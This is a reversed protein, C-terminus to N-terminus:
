IIMLLINKLIMAFDDQIQTTVICTTQNERFNLQQVMLVKKKLAPLRDNILNHYQDVFDADGEKVYRFPFRRLIDLKGRQQLEKAITLRRTDICYYYKNHEFITIPALSTPDLFGAALAVYTESVSMEGNSFCPNFYEQTYRVSQFDINEISM